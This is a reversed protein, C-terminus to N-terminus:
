KLKRRDGTEGTEQTEQRRHRRGNIVTFLMAAAVITASILGTVMAAHRRASTRGAGVRLDVDREETGYRNSATCKYIGHHESTAHPIRLVEPPGTEVNNGNSPDEWEFTASPNANSDCTMIVEDGKSVSVPSGSVSKNNVSMTITTNRPKYLVRLTANQQKVIPTTKSHLKLEAECFYQQGDLKAQADVPHYITLGTNSSENVLIDTRNKLRLELEGSVNFVSCTINVLNREFTSLVQIEPASFAYVAICVSDNKAPVSPYEEFDATCVVEMLGIEQPVWVTTAQVTNSNTTTVSNLEGGQQSWRVRMKEAPYVNPVECTLTVEQKVEIPGQDLIRPPDPFYYTQLTVSSNAIPKTTNSGLDVEALCTYEQRDDSTSATFSFVNQLRNDEDPSGPEGTSNSQVIESGRLWTLILKNNPYVRPGTCELSYTKNIELVEPPSTINLERNYVTVVKKVEKLNSHDSKCIVSCPVAFDWEQVSPIYDTFWGTGNTRNSHIGPKYEMTVTPDACTTRCIVELSDGFEVAPPNTDLSVEFGAVNEAGVRLDVDREETGYRNSATCKYIGHHESTAHPIRLVEPPGTEVNNGNSPDEWEFTASPNANSDCTMTVEADKSVYVPSGSVSKSNVSMTITTNRSKYLVRLTANQQKVIPTTKSHLKLEAECFYQQGDLKAQADVPHYITLGTNSSENVLIDTRNKLRLELEGYVAIYVSDNKAPVSPYEEFDATCVVEMLGIEQPVWVTTAQVTNSNTTTVSNLEGGQQSWRVRMKEAPYVNPVECTLTVEQKVEIPGQDLIRPPDPFYYTQLTVSSNAIPKTTNSGLDVEALCTYEQRDDSTSATFSFVNRLRNDEDPLGLKGTSNSQVIESGRLWTLILKNNPYVRPGTCELSYTKNIELVEPPSTINLERNYVTVVKKVEKLNSHDSKCIVSCPVAFDWEQVSPIYDTFWGASNTRNSHIGPKYEVTVIPDPCTTRCIVELSDGFEVAPPNTDLSVEFGAVNEAGVRLDVDREETGYRNSATCKYIGHHESTAHPIRLVEPPGTEVNNGNSPDEWEFTASPNANSDCTMIVEDGKSVSVPSGSVSKNNVSMTITTNRPKYLVRLTANQQKVIPTTKSHLKLEAECFYQQGDLKAQADVPHYITLGTNSSENVLIDTRNKLRLELEGSVNFVSCTINVLNREFTSPVQIEPASFAYVAIYVSDNKAPVSPYEEFDATCVVEMLGIEQPVWVTTAQVTNSNTTTVSNLEGGQQSWRVRMKEAPYVNPVECTLTVEQKVEIPGQDLIRPPDPFYYTQLTVSSNAIPKTTNSGLDVEALCTYEQRDDSTSATFSFVNRLRNDEDPLGPEGTSNSQVIESGRLWTLILKNNPYVRPGTCELSYTKNIELVEPPSTINLERNYVTVVKRAEKLKFRDSKCIVSCPVTFDWEQVSPIYDTLWGASNTRNSHIGPKYEVTVIPDACTTTRCIVELSDGFEVAPPNTDLSVEFGAVNEAGVRLDVDREETGYRNSATCKYIGHHESTAHPIRLVEPPDTEVNNGNSPDEWEFTASPNANSDCTMTVEADKSVYVPSGSVTKNNVSMTITIDQPKYLIIANLSVNISGYKNIATCIYQGGHGLQVSPIHLKEKSLIKGDKNWSVRPAPNGEAHCTLTQSKGEIWDEQEKSVPAEKPAYLVRLTANQQKVIPTTKSHLKLEAECIYQQGDLKAQADVPHYITLGTNSSENMLIDTRNKLRLELEGSVNFVSCTINVLNGEFISPVQIEPASFAYVAIYVSDNKAPVSPYEEFDATCVVEMLGIEQPVWVTTAQVTNSNTTTVSNLEGGQQSWRVRMKEAPYVNPVECTLTVEQKVEIPGQDLIRPPDPFYYTQLTVSSNAIPKTTSSGLDVEALCTYEQRDDSTSATFSFVNRLRNDEDPFGPEGTSNSQVIESGRLWTLILKNNPYVRPGTCELSYTKNIELVEPPSTINLGRNYVTVVKKVEKLKSHDSKCIVSCPVAFDWEQVSPIYDTFWGTGNTRNSHIGPKYEVTVTPDPCTTRCIVELSDGFEVAPPNTDLSVEFGAVNEAGVRLDVDREETGYRNSATCKYIGHHESTAHPIRLVEPPGTEVNNGNSPDEWEFTASPNANSDCTMTVEADKSVYVPSGSVSKNNVSMTITIDQPKYLIIANLSVNISGYKNIATCIYQGGHGLQVSPIHLKERSLIKGDKSWSVRPAPNGEAHCTLTQSKGEIWDEQEKSVPAEIPAYLVRLTANQQKVIPTTKSHLKLEAECIYQQGDLKAQADVPHYITLGTNSSENVLIDTRNKLRLELEGSVNFVSCTINVLNREFTSPVQIEPASFAYVAIYVSDNKAPVSPYEEFDATCVVEMLGIEQPVWVTTAQVTNSNTTTVSNLEGGQQSWRVRMKEAPYVNPVECTLTVEQKVEIPGQDLIRPPDPFYYTQLTVSSNAIPKTTNSGLDVEALCTYEQRDDSTSATFSFVNRLRNDEDPLGLKGTSNSQVIESGRLWTLILKNNPYVRPGTCELSYTKNIELVEPPSTINLERNYVIVVKKKEKLKNNVANCIVSCPVSIDWSEISPFFDAKWKSGSQKISYIGPKYEVMILPEPDACTTSCNAELSDGFEVAPPNTDISVEFGAVNTTIRLTFIFCYVYGHPSTLRFGM